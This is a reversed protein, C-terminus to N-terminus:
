TVPSGCKEFPKASGLSRRPAPADPRLTCAAVRQRSAMWYDM